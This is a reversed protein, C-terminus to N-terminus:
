LTIALIRSPMLVMSYPENRLNWVQLRRLFTMERKMCIRFMHERALKEVVARGVQEPSKERRKRKSKTCACYM